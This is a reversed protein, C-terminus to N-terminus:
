KGNLINKKKEKSRSSFKSVPLYIQFEQDIDQVHTGHIREPLKWSHKRQNRQPLSKKKGDKEM